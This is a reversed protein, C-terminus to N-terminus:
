LDKDEKDFKVQIPGGGTGGIEQRDTWKHMNKLAFITGAPNYVGSVMGDVMQQLQIEKAKKYALGFDPFKDCWDLLVATPTNIKAAFGSIHNFLKGVKHNVIGDEKTNMVKFVDRTNDPNLMYEIIMECYEPKYTTPAGTNGNKNTDHSGGKIWRGTKKDQISGDPRFIAPRGEYLKIRCGDKKRM